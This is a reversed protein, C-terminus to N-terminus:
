RRIAEIDRELEAMTQELLPPAQRALAKFRALCWIGVGAYLVLFMTLVQLRWTDWFVIVVLLTAMAMAMAMAFVATVGLLARLLLRDREESLEVSALGMRTHLIALLAVGVERLTEFLRPPTDKM